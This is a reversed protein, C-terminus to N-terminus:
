KLSEVIFSPTAKTVGDLGSINNLIKSLSERDRTWIVVQFDHGGTTNFVMRAEPIAVLRRGVEMMKSPDVDVGLMVRSKYGMKEEDVDVLFGKIVGKKRLSIVRKRVTSENMRLRKAMEKYTFDADKSLLRVIRDNTDEPLM